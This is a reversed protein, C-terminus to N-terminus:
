YEWRGPQKALCKLKELRHELEQMQAPPCLIKWDGVMVCIRQLLSQVDKLRGNQFCLHNRLKWLGWLAASTFINLVCFRKNSLWFNAMLEYSAGCETSNAESIFAWMQRAVVCEFFLHNASENESCFLRTKDQVSVRKLVNDRTLVKNQSLLWQFFHVRPPIKLSWVAPLYVPSIGRFNVVKYLSQSSYIGNSCFTWIYDDPENSLTITTVLQCVEEWQLMLDNNATRRFTCKLDTGDWLDHITKSKESM